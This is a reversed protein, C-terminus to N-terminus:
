ASVPRVAKIENYGTPEGTQRNMGAVVEVEVRKGLLQETDFAGTLPQGTAARYFNQLQFAARGSTSTKHFVARGNNKSEAEGYTELQWNVYKGGNPWDKLEAKKVTCKYVGPQVEDQVDSFDPTVLAM